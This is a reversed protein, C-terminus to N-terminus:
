KPEYWGVNITMPTQVALHHHGTRAELFIRIGVPNTSVRDVTAVPVVASSRACPAATTALAGVKATVLKAHKRIEWKNTV